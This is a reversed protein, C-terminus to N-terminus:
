DTSFLDKLKALRPDTDKNDCNCTSVNLNIGCHQCLGKCDENCLIKIPLTIIINNEIVETIDINDSDIFIINEDEDGPDNSFKEHIEFKLPYSFREVCRSCQLTLETDIECDLSLISGTLSLVGELEVPKKCQVEKNSVFLESENIVLHIEKKEIKRKLLSSVDITM